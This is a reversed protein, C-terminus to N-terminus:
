CRNELETVRRDMEGAKLTDINEKLLSHITMRDGVIDVTVTGPTLTISNAYIVKGLDTRQSTDITVLTPSISSNGLWIHKVVSINSVIIEKTLWLVYGPMKLSLHVPQSEHDIVDMRHAIFLVLLISAAGLSLLLANSYNSNIWWFLSLSLCLSLTHSPLSRATEDLTMKDLIKSNNM